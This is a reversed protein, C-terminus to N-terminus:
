KRKEIFKKMERVFDEANIKLRDYDKGSLTSIEGRTIRKFIIYMNRM